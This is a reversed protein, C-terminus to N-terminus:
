YVANIENKLVICNTSLNCDYLFYKVSIIPSDTGSITPLRPCVKIPAVSTKIAALCEVFVRAAILIAFEIIKQM